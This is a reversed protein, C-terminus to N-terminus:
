TYKRRGVNNDEDNDRHVVPQKRTRQNKELEFSNM